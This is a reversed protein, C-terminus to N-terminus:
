YRPLGGRNRDALVRDRRLKVDVMFQMLKQQDFQLDPYRRAVRLLDRCLNLCIDYARVCADTRGRWELGGDVFDGAAHQQDALMYVKYTFRNPDMADARSVQTTIAGQLKLVYAQRKALAKAIEQDSRSDRVRAKDIGLADLLEKRTNVLGAALGLRHAQEATLTMLKGRKTVYFGAEGGLKEAEAAEDAPVVSQKGNIRVERLEVDPDVMAGALHPSHGHRTAAARASAAFGSIMKETVQPAGGGDQRYPTAAGIATGPAMYIRDCTLAIVAGASFAGNHRGQRIFAVTDMGCREICTCIDQMFDIRGGPTDLEVVLMDAGRKRADAIDRRIGVPMLDAEIPGSVQVFCVKATVPEPEAPEEQDIACPPPPTPRKTTPVKYASKQIGKVESEQLTLKITDTIQVVIEGDAQSVIRGKVTRGNKLTIVDARATLALFLATVALRLHRMLSGEEQGRAHRRRRAL